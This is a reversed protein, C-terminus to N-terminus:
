ADPSGAAPQGSWARQGEDYLIRVCAVLPVAVVVGLIGGAAAGGAIALIIAGPPLATRRGQILPTLLYDDLLQAVLCIGVPVLLLHWWQVGHPGVYRGHVAPDTLHTALLLWALPLTIVHLWPVLCLLGTAVGLLLGYPVQALTLGVAYAIALLLCVVFRGRVFAGVTHEIRRVVAQARPRGPLPISERVFTRIEPLHLSCLLASAIILGAVLLVNAVQALSGLLAVLLTVGRRLIAVAIATGNDDPGAPASVPAAPSTLAGALAQLPGRVPAPVWAQQALHGARAVLRPGEQWLARAQSALPPVALIVAALLSAVLLTASGLVVRRRTLWRHTRTAAVVAPEALDALVLGLVLPLVIGRLSWALDLALAISALVALDRVLQIDWLHIQYWSRGGEPM